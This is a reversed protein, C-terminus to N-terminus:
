TDKHTFVQRLNDLEYLALSRTLHKYIGQEREFLMKKKIKYHNQQPLIIMWYVTGVSKYTKFNTYVRSVLASILISFMDTVWPVGRLTRKVRPLGEKRVRM